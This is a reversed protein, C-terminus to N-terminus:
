FRDRAAVDRAVDRQPARAPERNLAEAAAGDREVTEVGGEVAERVAFRDSREARHLRERVVREPDIARPFTPGM